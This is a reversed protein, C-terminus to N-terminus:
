FLIATHDVKKLLPNLPAAMPSYDPFFSRCLNFVGLSYRAETLVRLHQLEKLGKVHAETISLGQTALTHGLYEMKTTFWHRNRFKLSVRAAHLM